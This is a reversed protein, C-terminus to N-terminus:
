SSVYTRRERKLRGMNADYKVFGTPLILKALSSSALLISILAKNSTLEISKLELFSIQMLIDSNPLARPTHLTHSM